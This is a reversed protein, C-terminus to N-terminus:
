TSRGHNHAWLERDFRLLEHYRAEADRLLARAAEANSEHGYVEAEAVALEIGQIRTILRTREGPKEPMM